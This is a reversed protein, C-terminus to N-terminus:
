ECAVSEEAVGESCLVLLEMADRLVDSDSFRWISLIDSLEAVLAALFHNAERWCCDLAGPEADEMYVGEWGEGDKPTDDEGADAVPVGAREELGVCSWCSCCCCAPLWFRWNSSCACWGHSWPWLLRSWVGPVGEEKALGVVGEPEGGFGGVPGVLLLEM